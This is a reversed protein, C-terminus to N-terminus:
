IFVEDANLFGFADSVGGGDPKQEHKVDDPEWFNWFHVWDKIDNAKKHLEDIYSIAVRHDEPSLKNGPCGNHVLLEDIEQYDASGYWGPESFKGTYYRHAAKYMGTINAYFLTKM